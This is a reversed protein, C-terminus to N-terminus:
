PLLSPMDINSLQSLSYIDQPPAPSGRDKWHWGCSKGVCLKKDRVGSVGAGGTTAACM